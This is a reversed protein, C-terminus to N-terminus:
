GSYLAPALCAYCGERGGGRGSQEPRAGERQFEPEARLEPGEEQGSRWGNGAKSGQPPGLKRGNPHPEATMATSTTPPLM